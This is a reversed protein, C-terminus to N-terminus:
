KFTYRLETELKSKPKAGDQKKTEFKGQLKWNGDMNFKYGLESSYGGNMKGGEIYLNNDAKYGFRLHHTQDEKRVDYENKYEIYPAGAMTNAALLLAPLVLLLKM